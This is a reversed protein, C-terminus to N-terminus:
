SQLADEVRKIETVDTNTGFWQVIKGQAVKLPQVRTLFPRFQVDGGKLPFVMEFPEGTAISVKWQDLVTPLVYPDHVRQWGWGGDAGAVHRYVRVLTYRRTLSSM